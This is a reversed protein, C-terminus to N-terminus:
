PTPSNNTAGGNSISGNTLKSLFDTLTKQIGGDAFINGVYTTVSTIVTNLDKGQMASFGFVVVGIIVFMMITKLIKNVIYFAAVLAIAAVIYYIEPNTSHQINYVVDNLFNM